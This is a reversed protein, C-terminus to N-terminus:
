HKFPKAKSSFKVKQELKFQFLHKQPTQIISLIYIRTELWGSYQAKM